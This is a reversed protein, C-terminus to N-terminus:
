YEDIIVGEDEVDDDYENFTYRDVGDVKSEVVNPWRFARNDENVTFVYEVNADFANIM